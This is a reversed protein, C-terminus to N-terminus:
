QQQFRQQFGSTFHARGAADIVMAELNEAKALALGAEAGQIFIVKALVVAQEAAPAIVSVSQCKSAPWGTKLDIIHHYRVGGAMRYREYDGSTVLVGGDLSLSGLITGRAARPNQIGIRWPRGGKQGSVLVDGGGDVLFDQFGAARIVAAARDIAYGKAIGGLGISMGARALGVRNGAIRLDRFGVLARAREVEDLTPVRFGDDFRWIHRMGRWTVDFAGDSRRSFDVSRELLARLEAPVEVLSKGAAENIASVPSEPKWESMLADIRALEEFAQGAAKEAAGAQDRHVIEVRWITGMLSRQIRLSAERSDVPLTRMAVALAAASCVGLLVRKM